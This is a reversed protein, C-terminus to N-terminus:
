CTPYGGSFGTRPHKYATTKQEIKSREKRKRKEPKERTRCDKKDVNHVGHEVCSYQGQNMKVSLWNLLQTQLLSEEDMRDQIDLEVDRKNYKYWEISEQIDERTLGREAEKGGIM